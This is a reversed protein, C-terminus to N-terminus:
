WLVWPRLSWLRPKPETVSPIVTSRITTTGRVCYLCVPKLASIARFRGRSPYYYKGHATIDVINADYLWNYQLSGGAYLGSRPFIVGHSTNVYLGIFAIGVSASGMYKPKYAGHTVSRNAAASICVCLAAVILFLKKM